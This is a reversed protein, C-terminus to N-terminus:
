KEEWLDLVYENRTPFFPPPYYLLSNDFTLTVDNYGLFGYNQNVVIAGYIELQNKATTDTRQVSGEQALLVADIHLNNSSGKVIEVNGEAALGLITNSTYNAYRIDKYLYINGKNASSHITAITLRKGNGLTGEVWINKGVYIVAINPLPVNLAVEHKKSDKVTGDANVAAGTLKFIDFVDGKLVIQHGQSEEGWDFNLTQAETFMQNFSILVSDFDEEGIGISKGGLFVNNSMTTNYEGAWSTWVGDKTVGGYSYTPVASSVLNNAVGQFRIGGNSHVKGFTETGDAIELNSNSFIVYECWAPRRLRVQITRTLGTDKYTWGTSKVVISTSGSEPPTVEIKYKGIGEFDAEYPVDVGYPYPSTNEWFAEVQAPTLGDINHSIYWRYFHIGAEAINFTEEMRATHLSFKIQSTVYQTLSMFIISIVTVLVLTLVLVAGKRNKRKM